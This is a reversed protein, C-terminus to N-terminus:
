TPRLFMIGCRDMFRALTPGRLVMVDKVTADLGKVDDVFLNVFFLCPYAM